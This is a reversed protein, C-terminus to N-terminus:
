AGGGRERLLGGPPVSQRHEALVLVAGAAGVHRLFREHFRVDGSVEPHFSTALLTGQEVAVVRGDPLAALARAREGVASVIPARIFAAHVPTDFGEDDDRDRGFLKGLFGVLEEQDGRCPEADGEIM